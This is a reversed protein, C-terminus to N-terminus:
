CMWPRMGQGRPWPSKPKGSDTRRSGLHGALMWGTARDFLRSVNDIRFKNKGIRPWATEVSGAAPCSSSLRSILEIGDQQDLKAAPV